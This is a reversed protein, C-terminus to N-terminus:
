FHIYAEKGRNYYYIISTLTRASVAFRTRLDLASNWSIASFHQKEVHRTNAILLGRDIAAINATTPLVTEKSIDRRSDYSYTSTTYRRAGSDPHFRPPLCDLLWVNEKNSDNISCFCARSCPLYLLCTICTKNFRACVRNYMRTRAHAPTVLGFSNVDNTHADRTGVRQTLQSSFSFSILRYVRTGRLGRITECFLLAGGTKETRISSM